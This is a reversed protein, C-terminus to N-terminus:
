LYVYEFHWANSLIASNILPNVEQQIVREVWGLIRGLQSNVWRLVLTGSKM